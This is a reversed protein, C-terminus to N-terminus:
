NGQVREEVGGAKNADEFRSPTRVYIGYGKVVEALIVYIGSIESAM